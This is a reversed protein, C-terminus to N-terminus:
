PMSDFIASSHCSTQKPMLVRASFVAGLERVDNLGTKRDMCRLGKTVKGRKESKKKQRRYSQMCSPYCREPSFLTSPHALTFFPTSSSSCTFTLTPIFPLIHLCLSLGSLPDWLRPSRSKPKMQILPHTSQPFSTTLRHEMHVSHARSMVATVPSNNLETM